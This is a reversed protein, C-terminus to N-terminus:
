GTLKIWSNVKSSFRGMVNHPLKVLIMWDHVLPKIETFLQLPENDIVLTNLCTSEDIGVWNHIPHKDFICCGM